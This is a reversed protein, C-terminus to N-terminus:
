RQEALSRGFRLTFRSKPFRAYLSMNRRLILRGPANELVVGAFWGRPSATDMHAVWSGTYDLSGLRGYTDLSQAQLDGLSGVVLWSALTTRQLAPVLDMVICGVTTSFGKRLLLQCLPVASFPLM